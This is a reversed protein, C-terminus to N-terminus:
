RTAARELLVGSEEADLTPKRQALSPHDAVHTPGGVRVGAAQARHWGESM